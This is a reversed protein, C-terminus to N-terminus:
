RSHFKDYVLKICIAALFSIFGVIPVFFIAWANTERFGGPATVGTLVYIFATSTIAAVVVGSESASKPRRRLDIMWMILACVVGLVLFAGLRSPLSLLFDGIM